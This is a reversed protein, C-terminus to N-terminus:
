FYKTIGAERFSTMERTMRAATEILPYSALAGTGEGLRLGLSLLPRAGLISLLLRHGAEDGEHAFIMYPAAEPCLRRAALACATMIFGDVVIVMGEEAAGLMAGVAAVMEFGGFHAMVRSPDAHHAPDFGELAQQLIGLKRAVAKPPLGSGAGVCDSLPAPGLLSMWLSSASTNAIGMEGISIINSGEGHARLAMERGIALALEMQEPTMAPGHLFNATGPAIKLNLIDPFASLDHDVGVDILRLGIGHQRCLMSVGGHGRSFNIMQQWTVDRPSASVGEREIGHDAAFLLHCPKLLRPELTDQILCLQRAVDELLGMSGRPKTLNDIMEQIRPIMSEDPSKINFNM